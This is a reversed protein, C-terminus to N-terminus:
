ASVLVAEEYFHYVKSLLAVDHTHVSPVSYLTSYEVNGGAARQGSGAAQQKSGVTWTLQAIRM